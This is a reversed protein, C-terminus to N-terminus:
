LDSIHCEIALEFPVHLHCYLEFLFIVIKNYNTCTYTPRLNEVHIRAYRKEYFHEINYLNVSVYITMRFQNIFFSACKLIIRINLARSYIGSVCFNLNVACFFLFM